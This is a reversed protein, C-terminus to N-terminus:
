PPTGSVLVPPLGFKGPVLPDFVTGGISLYRETTALWPIDTAEIPQYLWGSWTTGGNLSERLYGGPSAIM